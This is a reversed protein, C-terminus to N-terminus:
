EEISVLKSKVVLRQKATWLPTCTYLTLISTKTWREVKMETPDVVSTEFVEYFYKKQNWIVEIQDGIELKDLHYFTEPGTTNLYRHAVIITNSGREPTSSTPRLWLGKDLVEPLEGEFIEGNVFIKPIILRNVSNEEAQISFPQYVNKNIALTKLQFIIEPSLPLVILYIALGMLFYTLLENVVKVVKLTSLM